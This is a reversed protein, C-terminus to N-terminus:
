TSCTASSSARRCSRRAARRAGRSTRPRHRRRERGAPDRDDSGRARVLRVGPRPRGRADPDSRLDHRAATWLEKGTAPDYAAVRRQSSVILEDREGTTIVVATGWGVTESRPTQWIPKGTAKDFAGVFACQGPAPNADQYIFIRDKYLVPSGAPGTITTSSASSTSGSSRATSTSRSCATVGSRRTSWSATPPPRRRLSATRRRARVRRREAPHLDGVVAQRRRALVRADVAARRQRLRDHPLHSRGLRDAVLQRPRARDVEVRQDDPSWKDTYQGGPVHGQGSPGRWRPWYKAGEGAVEIMRVDRLRPM